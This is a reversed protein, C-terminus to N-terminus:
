YYQSIANGLVNLNAGRFGGKDTSKKHKCQEYAERSLGLKLGIHMFDSKVSNRRRSIAPHKGVFSVTEARMGTTRLFFSSIAAISHPVVGLMISRNKAM